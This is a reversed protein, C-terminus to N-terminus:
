EPLPESPPAALIEKAAALNKKAVRVTVHGLPPFNGFLSQDLEEPICAEIGAQELRSKLVSAEATDAFTAVIELSQNPDTLQPDVEQDVEHFETDCEACRTATDENQHGCYSCTKM